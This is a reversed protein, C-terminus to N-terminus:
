KTAQKEASTILYQLTQSKALLQSDLLSRDFTRFELALVYYTFGRSSSASIARLFQM